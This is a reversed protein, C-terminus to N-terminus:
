GRFDKIRHLRIHEKPDLIELNEIRNDKTNGNKHHVHENKSLLRGLYEEMVRRHEKKRVGKIQKRIYSNNAWGGKYIFGFETLGNKM